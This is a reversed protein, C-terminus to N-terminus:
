EPLTAHALAIFIWDVVSRIERAVTPKSEKSKVRPCQQETPGFTFRLSYKRCSKPLQFKGGKQHRKIPPHNLWVTSPYIHLLFFYSYIRRPIAFKGYQQHCDDLRQRAIFFPSLFHVFRKLQFLFFSAVKRPLFRSFNISLWDTSIPLLFDLLLISVILIEENSKSSFLPSSVAVLSSLFHRELSEM